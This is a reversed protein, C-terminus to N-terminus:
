NAWPRLSNFWIKAKDKLTFSFFKLRMLDMTTMDEKFTNCVEEFERIHTYPNESEVGHFTPLLPVLYPIVVMEKTPPVICFPASLRPPHIHDRMSRFANLNREVGHQSQQEEHPLKMPDFNLSVRPITEQSEQPISIKVLRGKSNRFWQFM